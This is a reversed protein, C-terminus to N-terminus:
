SKKNIIPNGQNQQKDFEDIIKKVIKLGSLLEKADDRELEKKIEDILELQKKPQHTSTKFLNEFNNKYENFTTENSAIQNLFEEIEDDNKITYNTLKDNLFEKLITSELQEKEDDKIEFSAYTYGRKNFLGLIEDVLFQIKIGYHKQLILLFLRKVLKNRLNNRKTHRKGRRVVQSLGFSEDYIITGSQFNDIKSIDQLTFSFFGTNKGGLDLSIVSNM